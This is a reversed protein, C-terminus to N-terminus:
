PLSTAATCRYALRSVFVALFLRHFFFSVSCNRRAAAINPGRLFATLFFFRTAADRRLRLFFHAPLETQKIRHLTGTTITAPFDTYRIQIMAVAARPNHLRTRVTTASTNHSTHCTAPFFPLCLFGAVKQTM